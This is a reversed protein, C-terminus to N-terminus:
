LYPATFGLSQMGTKIEPASTFLNWLLGTRYNEIMVIIPGQDIALYSDAFWGQSLKFADKFGYEGWLKDGLKYYFFNMAKKSEAPTYPMSSLAATPAIVGVDNTPSSATYGGPIDSATLGWCKDSYGYHNMPNEVCHSYNIKSHNVNQTWYNAYVDSLGNPNIGLFSYHSFFLPGGKVPGLPLNFGYYSNGNQMAGNQAFGQTYVSAPIGHSASSAAMVYTILAENWGRIPLNMDWGYNPSWHWYLVQENNKRFWDWEITSLIDNINNRLATEGADTGNFYQRACILGQALLSTEVLDAGDDKTSFPVAAGTAGNLWHPYAGHFRQATNKLFNVMTTLRALADSRSVFNRSTGAIIAMIGFGTGGSTVVDGSSNRERAMGSVPHGFEWFYKLTTQQIKDLLATESIQPFKDTTDLGTIFNLSVPNSLTKGAASKLATTVELKYATFGSLASAPTVTLTKDGNSLVKGASVVANTQANKFTVGTAVTATNVAESFNIEVVPQLGSNTFNTNTTATGNVKYTLSYTSPGPDPGPSPESKKCAAAMISLFVVLYINKM